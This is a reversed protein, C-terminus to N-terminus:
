NDYVIKQDTSKNFVTGLINVDKLLQAARKLEGMKSQGEDVVLLLADVYPVFSLADDQLLFPPLDFIVIRSEYRNRLEQVLHQMKPAHLMETSNLVPKGAPLIVLRDIGPNVLLSSLEVHHHQLYDSLGQTTPLGFMNHINPHQLNADVLLVSRNLEMAISIALNVATLSNGTQHSTSTVALTKWGHAAMKQLCQTRLMRFSELWQGPQHLSIIRHDKLAQPNAKYVKTQTYVIDLVDNYNAGIPPQIEAISQNTQM